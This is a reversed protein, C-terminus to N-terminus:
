KIARFVEGIVALEASSMNSTNSLVALFANVEEPVTPCGMNKGKTQLSAGPLRIQSDAILQGDGDFILWFPIGTNPPQYQKLLEEAGTNELHQHEDSEYVTLHDIIYHDNFLQKCAVNQM